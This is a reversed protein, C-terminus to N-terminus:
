RLPWEKLLLRCTCFRGLHFLGLHDASFDFPEFLAATRGFGLTIHPVFNRYSAETRFNKVWDVDKDRVPEGDSHFSSADGGEEEWEKLTDMLSEHLKQLPRTRDLLFSITSEQDILAIAATPVAATDRLALGLREILLPLSAKWAFCQALTIHPMHTADFKLGGASLERNVRRAREQVREPPILALDIAILLNENSAL